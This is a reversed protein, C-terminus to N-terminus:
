INEWKLIMFIIFVGRRLVRLVRLVRLSFNMVFECLVGMGEIFLGVFVRMHGCLMIVICGVMGWTKCCNWPLLVSGHEGVQKDFGTRFQPLHHNILDIDCQVVEEGTM